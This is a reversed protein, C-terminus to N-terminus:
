RSGPLYPFLLGRQLSIGRLLPLELDKVGIVKVFLRGREADEEFDQIEEEAAEDEHVAVLADQMVSAQGPLPPVATGLVKKRPSLEGATRISRRRSKGNWPETVWTQQSIKRPMPDLTAVAAPKAPQAEEDVRNSAVVMKTNQRMLYGRQRDPSRNAFHSGDTPYQHGMARQDKPLARAGPPKLAPRDRWARSHSPTAVESSPFRGHFPHHLRSLSLEFAVKQAEVVRDFEKELGFGLSEAGHERPIDLQVLSSVRKSSEQSSTPNAVRDTEIESTSALFTDQAPPALQGSVQRRTAAMTSADAPTLSPRTKLRSGADKVTAVPGAIDPSPSRAVPHRIVSDPTGPEAVTEEGYYSGSPPQLQGDPTEPRHPEPHSHTAAPAQVLKDVARELPPSPTMYSELGFNFSRGSGFDSLLPLSMRNIEPLKKNEAERAPSQARPTDDGEAHSLNPRFTASAQSYQSETDGFDSEDHSLNTHEDPVSYLEFDECPEEKITIQEEIPEEVIVQTPDERSPIPVDPDAGLYSQLNSSSAAPEEFGDSRLDQHSSLRRLISERSIHTEEVPYGASQQAEPSRESGGAQHDTGRLPSNERPEARRMKRERQTEANTKERDQDQLIMLKLRDELSLGSGSMRRIESKSIGAAQPPSPLSRPGSSIRELTSSLPSTPSSPAMNPLPPLPRPQGNSDISNVSTQHPRRDMPGPKATPEPSGYSQDFADDEERVLDTNAIDPSMFRWDEPLVVPTKDTDELSADFSDERDVSSGHEFSLDEDDENSELSGERSGSAVSSPDPTTMEYENVQPPAQDFTVSKAHRRLVRGQPLKREVLSDEEDSWIGNVTDFGINRANMGTKKSLSSKSPSTNTKSPSLPAMFLPSSATDFTEIPPQKAPEEAAAQVDDKRVGDLGQAGFVNSQMQPGRPRGTALPRDPLTVHSPDYENKQERAFM